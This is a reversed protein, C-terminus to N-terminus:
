HSQLVAAPRSRRREIDPLAHQIAVHWGLAPGARSLHPQRGRYRPRHYLDGLRWTNRLRGPGHDRLAAAWKVSDPLDGFGKGFWITPAYTNFPEAGVAPEGTGGWEIGFGASMVFEHQPITAFQWKITTELNQFGTVSPMGQPTIQSWAAGISVGLTNTIRNSLESSLNVQAASPDDGTGFASITPLSLEDAVCPDDTALTAPFFRAGVFCHAFAQSAFLSTAVVSLAALM